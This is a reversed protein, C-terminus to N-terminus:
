RSDERSWLASPSLVTRGPEVPATKAFSALADEETPYTELVKDLATTQLLSQLHPGLNSLKLTVGNALAIKYSEVIEGLCSSDIHQLTAFNLLVRSEGRHLLAVILDRLGRPNEAPMTLDGSVDIISVGNVQRESLQM